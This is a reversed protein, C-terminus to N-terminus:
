PHVNIDTFSGTIMTTDSSPNILKVSFDGSLKNGSNASITVTGAAGRLDNGADDVYDFRNTSVSVPYSNPNLSSLQISVRPQSSNGMTAIIQNSGLGVGAQTVYAAAGTAMHIVNEHTWTFSWSDNSKNSDKSCSLLILTLGCIIAIKKMM